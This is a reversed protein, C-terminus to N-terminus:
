KLKSCREYLDINSKQLITCHIGKHVTKFYIAGWYNILCYLLVNHDFAKSTNCLIGTVKQPGDLAQM